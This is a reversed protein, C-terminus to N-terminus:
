AATRLGELGTAVQREAHAALAKRSTFATAPLPAHFRLEIEAGPLGLASWLHPLLAMDGYWAYCARQARGIAPGGRFRRYAITVPQVTTVPGGSGPRELADFLASKFPLVRSGDSSTGEAFLILRENAGCRLYGKLLPPLRTWAARQDVRGAPLRRMAVYRGPLAVPRCGPPALHHHLHALLPALDDPSTGPLSACGFLVEIGHCTVYDAIGGWLRDIVARSRYAPDVCSRGLELCAAFRALLPALDFEAASYFGGIRDAVPRPILRCTGIVQGFIAPPVKRRARDVVLLHDCARDFRDMDRRWVKTRLDACAGMEKYFVRYRLAQASAVDRRNRALRVQLEANAVM